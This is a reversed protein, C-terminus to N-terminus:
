NTVFLGEGMLSKAEANVGFYWWLSVHGSM